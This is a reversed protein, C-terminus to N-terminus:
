DALAARVRRAPGWSDRHWCGEQTAAVWGAVAVCEVCETSSGLDDWTTGPTFVQLRADGIGSPLQPADSPGATRCNARHVTRDHGPREFIDQSTWPDPRLNDGSTGLVDGSTRTAGGQGRGPGRAPLGRGRARRGRPPTRLPPLADHDPHGRPGDMGPRPPHRGQRDDPDRVHPTSRLQASTPVIM